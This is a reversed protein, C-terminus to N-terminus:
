WYPRAAFEDPNNLSLHPALRKVVQAVRPSFSERMIVGDPDRSLEARLAENQSIRHVFEQIQKEEM